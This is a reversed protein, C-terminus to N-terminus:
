FFEGLSWNARVSVWDVTTTDYAYFDEGAVNVHSQGGMVQLAFEDEVSSVTVGTFSWETYTTTISTSDVAVGNRLLRVTHAMTENTLTKDGKARFRVAITGTGFVRFNYVTDWEPSGFGDLGATQDTDTRAIEAGADDNSILAGPLSVDGAITLTTGDWKIYDGSPNGFFMKAVGSQTGIWWGTAGAFTSSGSFIYGNTPIEITAANFEFDATITGDVLLDGAVYANQMSVVGGAVGFVTVPSGLGNAPDVIYFEDALIAFTGTTGNNMTTLGTIHGNVNLSLGWQAHIGNISSTHSTITSTHGNVTTTLTTISSANATDGAIRATQETIIAAFADETEAVLAAFREAMTESPSVLVTDVDLIFATGALNRAGLLSIDQALTTIGDDFTNFQEELTVGTEKIYVTGTDLKFGTWDDNVEGLVRRQMLNDILLQGATDIDTIRGQIEDAVAQELIQEGIAQLQEATVDVISANAVDNLADRMEQILYFTQKHALDLDTETLVAGTQFDVLRNTDETRRQIVVADGAQCPTVLRATSDNVFDWQGPNTLVTGNLAVYVDNESIYDFPITFDTQAATASYRIITDAV